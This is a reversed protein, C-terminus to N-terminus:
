RLITGCQISYLSCLYAEYTNYEVIETLCDIKISLASDVPCNYIYIYVDTDIFSDIYMAM